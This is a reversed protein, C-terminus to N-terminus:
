FSTLALFLANKKVGYIKFKSTCSTKSCATPCSFNDLDIEDRSCWEKLEPSAEPQFEQEQVKPHHALATMMAGYLEKQHALGLMSSLHAPHSSRFAPHALVDLAALM